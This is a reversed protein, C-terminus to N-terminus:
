NKVAKKVFSKEEYSLYVANDKERSHHGATHPNSIFLFTTTSSIVIKAECPSDYRQGQLCRLITNNHLLQQDHM